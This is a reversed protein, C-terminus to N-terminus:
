PMASKPESGREAIIESQAARIETMRQADKAESKPRGVLSLWASIEPILPAASAEFRSREAILRLSHRETMMPIRTEVRGTIIKASSM